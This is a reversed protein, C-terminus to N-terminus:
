RAQRSLELYAGTEELAEPTNIQWTRADTLKPISLKSKGWRFYLGADLGWRTNAAETPHNTTIVMYPMLSERLPYDLLVDGYTFWHVFPMHATAADAAAWPGVGDDHHYRVPIGEWNSGVLELVDAGRHGILLHLETAGQEALQDLKWALFPRGAIPLLCKQGDYGLRTGKGGCAVAVAKSSLAATRTSASRFEVSRSTSHTPITLPSSSSGVAAPM